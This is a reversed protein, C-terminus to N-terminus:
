RILTPNFITYGSNEITDSGDPIGSRALKLERVGAISFSFPVVRMGETVPPSTYLLNGDGYIRITPLHKVEDNDGTTGFIGSFTRYAGGIDYTVTSPSHLVKFGSGTWGDFVGIAGNYYYTGHNDSIPTGVRDIGEWAYEDGTWEIRTLDVLYTEPKIQWHAYLTIDGTLSVVSVATVREGGEPTTWWGEFTYEKREPTPLEGYAAGNKRTIYEGDVTGGNADFYVKYSPIETWSAYLMHNGATRMMTEPTVRSTASREMFWGNFIYGTREPTPLAGYAGGYEIEKGGPSVRGDGANFTVTYSNAQWQAYVTFNGTKRKVTSSTEEVGGSVATFWGKFTYGNWSASPLSGYLSGYTVRKSGTNTVGGNADFWITYDRPTWRAYLKKYKVYVRTSKTIRSSWTQNTYWGAFKYGTRTAKPLTGYKKGYRVKKSKQGAKGGNGAFKVTWSRSAAYVNVDLSDAFPSFIKPADPARAGQEADYFIRSTGYPLAVVALAVIVAVSLLRMMWKNKM